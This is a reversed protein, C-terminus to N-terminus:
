KVLSVNEIKEYVGIERIPIDICDEVITVWWGGVKGNKINMVKTFLGLETKVISGVIIKNKIKSYIKDLKM